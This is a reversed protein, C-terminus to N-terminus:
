EFVIDEWDIIYLTKCKSCKKNESFFFVMLIKNCNQCSLKQKIGKLLLAVGSIIFIWVGIPDYYNSALYFIVLALIAYLAFQGWQRPLTTKIRNEM